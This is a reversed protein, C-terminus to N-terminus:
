LHFEVHHKDAIEKLTLDKSYRHRFVVKIPDIGPSLFLLARTCNHSSLKTKVGEFKSKVLLLM